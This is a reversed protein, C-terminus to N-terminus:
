DRELELSVIGGVFPHTLSVELHDAGSTRLHIASVTMLDIRSGQCTYAEYPREM